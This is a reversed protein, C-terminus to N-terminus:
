GDSRTLFDILLANVEASREDHPWHRTKEIVKLDRGGLEPAPPDTREAPPAGLDAGWIVLTPSRVHRLWRLTDVDFFGNILSIYPFMSGPRQSERHLHEIREPTALRYDHYCDRLFAQLAAPSSATEYLGIGASLTGLVFQNVRDSFAPQERIESKQVPCVLVLRNLLPEDYVGLRVAIGCSIGSAVVHAPGGIEDVIFDRLLHQHLEASHTLRPSDSDGFGLLDVAYVTFHQQLAAINHRYEQHSAGIYIGHVLVLPPGLGRRDYHLYGSRSQYHASAM